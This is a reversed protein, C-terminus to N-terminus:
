SDRMLPGLPTTPLAGVTSRAQRNLLLQLDGRRDIERRDLWVESGYLAVAQVCSIRRARVGEPVIGHMGTVIRQRAEAARAKEMCRNHHENFPLHADM